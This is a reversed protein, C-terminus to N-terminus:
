IVKRGFVRQMYEPRAREHEKTHDPVYQDCGFEPTKNEGNLSCKRMIHPLKDSGSLRCYCGRHDPLFKHNICRQGDCLGAEVFGRNGDGFLERREKVTFQFLDEAHRLQEATPQKLDKDTIALTM